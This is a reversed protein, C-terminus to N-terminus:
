SVRTLLYLELGAMTALVVVAFLFMPNLLQPRSSNNAMRGTQCWGLGVSLGRPGSDGREVLRINERAAM